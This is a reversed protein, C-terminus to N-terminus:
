GTRAEARSSVVNIKIDQSSGFSKNYEHTQFVQAGAASTKIWKIKFTPAREQQLPQQASNENSQQSFCLDVIAAKTAFCITPLLSLATLPLFCVVCKKQIESAIKQTQRKQGPARAWARQACTVPRFSIQLALSSVKTDWGGAPSIRNWRM